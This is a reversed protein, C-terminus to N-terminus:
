GKVLVVSVIQEFRQVDANLTDVADIIIDLDLKDPSCEDILEEVILEGAHYGTIIVKTTQTTQASMQQQHERNYEETYTEVRPIRRWDSTIVIQIDNDGCFDTIMRLKKTHIRHITSFSPSVTPQPPNHLLEDNTNLVSDIDLFLTKM